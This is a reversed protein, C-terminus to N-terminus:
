AEPALYRIRFTIATKAPIRDASFGVPQATGVVYVEWQALRNWIWGRRGAYLV